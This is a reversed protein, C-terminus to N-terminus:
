INKGFNSINKGYHYILTYACTMTVNLSFSLDYYTYLSDESCRVGVPQGNDLHGNNPPLKFFKTM